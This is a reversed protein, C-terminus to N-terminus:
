ESIEYRARLTRWRGLIAPEEKLEVLPFLEEEILDFDLEGHQRILIGKVDHWDLERNAFAKLIILDEASCTRLDIDPQFRFISSREVARREFDFGGTSVDIGIGVHADRILVVRSIRAFEAADEVRPEFEQLLQDIVPGEGGFGTFVTADVDETLRLEGWRQVAIGGIFCFPWGHSVCVAQFKQATQLIKRM